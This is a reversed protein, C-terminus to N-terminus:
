MPATSRTVRGGLAKGPAGSDPDVERMVWGDKDEVWGWRPQVAEAKLDMECADKADQETLRLTPARGEYESVFLPLGAARRAAEAAREQKSRTDLLQILIATAQPRDPDRVLGLLLRKGDEPVATM